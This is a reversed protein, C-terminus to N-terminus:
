SMLLFHISTIHIPLPDNTQREDVTQAGKPRSDYDNLREDCGNSFASRVHEFPRLSTLFRLCKAIGGELMVVRSKRHMESM